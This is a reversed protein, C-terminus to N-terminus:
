LKIDYFIVYITYKKSTNQFTMCYLKWLLNYTTYKRIQQHPYMEILNQECIRFLEDEAGKLDRNDRCVGFLINTM